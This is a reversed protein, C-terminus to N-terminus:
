DCLKKTTQSTGILIDESRTGTVNVDFTQVLHIAGAENSENQFMHIEGIM